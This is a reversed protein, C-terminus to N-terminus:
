VIPHQMVLGEMLDGVKDKYAVVQEAYENQLAM